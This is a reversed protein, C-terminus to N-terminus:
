QNPNIETTANPIGAASVATCPDYNAGLAGMGTQGTFDNECDGPDEKILEAELIRVAKNRQGFSSVAAAAFYPAVGEVTVILKSGSPDDEITGDNQPEIARRVWVTFAGGLNQGLFTTVNQFPFTTTSYDLVVGYGVGKLGGPLTDCTANEWNRSPLGATDPRALTWTPLLAMAAADERAGPLLVSWTQQRLFRKALELGATANYFAQQTHKYNHGIQLETSTTTALTLGLFTLVMLVLLAMILAFGDESRRRAM